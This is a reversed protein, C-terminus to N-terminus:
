RPIDIGDLYGRAFRELSFADSARKRASASYNQRLSIDAVLECMARALLEPNNAPVLMASPPDGVLERMPGADTVVCPIGLMMAEILANGLGERDTTSYVFLDWRTMEASVDNVMGRFVVKETIGFSEALAELIARQSGDGLLELTASPYSRLFTYFARLLNAHDKIEDLRATMGIRIPSEPTLNSTEYGALETAQIGNGVVRVPFRRLYRSGRFSDAVFRSCCVYTAECRRGLFKETLYYRWDVLRSMSHAPNGGHVLVRGPYDRLARLIEPLAVMGHWAIVGTPAWDVIADEVSRIRRRM